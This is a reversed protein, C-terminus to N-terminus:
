LWTIDSVVWSSPAQPLNWVLVADQLSYYWSLLLFLSTIRTFICIARAVLNKGCGRTLCGEPESVRGLGPLWKSCDRGTMESINTCPAMWNAYMRKKITTHIYIYCMGKETSLLIELSRTLQLINLWDGMSSCRPQTQNRRKYIFMKRCVVKHLSRHSCVNGKKKFLHGASFSWPEM